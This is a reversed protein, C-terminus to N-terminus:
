PSVDFGDQFILDNPVVVDPVLTAVEYAAPTGTEAVHLSSNGEVPAAAVTLSFSYLTGWDLSEGEPANWSVRDGTTSVTWPNAADATGDSFSTAVVAQSSPLPVSFSDFGRNGLVRPNAGSGDVPDMVARAFDFNMVAYDYRWTGDGLDTAKVAVKAHGEGVALENNMANAPPSAPDVWRDIAAGLRYNSQGSFSWAGGAYSPTGTITAMSNYINIDDRALYWSDMIYSAGPQATTAVQSEAVKMRQTWADNGNDGETGNCDPDWISGCRGWVGAAPVIESRPGMDWPSDNNFTGYTDSCGRGLIHPDNCGDLCGGNVTLFAHKVGSRGIQEISGDANIRYLNWILYPHQDNGYPAYNGTFKTYWAVTATHLATSTGLPDGAVTPLASGNNVNNRLTSSPAWAITGDGGDPGDCGLCDVMSISFSDMFLDAQYTQGPAGKVEVGPWPWLTCVGGAADGGEVHVETTLALDAVEQHAFSARGLRQALAPSMRVDAARIALRRKGDVLEFMVRDTYFWAKGDAGVLDLIRPDDGRVRLTLERLDIRSGDHLRLTYGGRMQLSGDSFRQLAGNRVVFRLGGSDRLAFWEHRRADELALRQDAEHEITVGVIGLLNRNWRVGVEGGWATWAQAAEAKTTRASDILGAHALPLVGCVALMAGVLRKM